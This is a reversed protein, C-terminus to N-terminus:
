PLVPEKLQSVLQQESQEALKLSFLSALHHRLRKKVTAMSCNEAGQVALSTMQVGTLGCPNIWAFPTLDLNVNLALGHFSVGHRIAIGISGLKNDGVWVGHNRADRGAEVGFDAALRLMLEELLEVYASVRLHRKKLRLIPYLVLQGPGHFTVEGGREIPVVAISREALFSGTVGLHARSANRGMTFVAPHEVCLFQEQYLLGEHLAKALQVQLKHVEKYPKLGLDVFGVRDTM